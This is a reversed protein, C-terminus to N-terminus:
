EHFVVFEDLAARDTKLSNIPQSKDEYGLAMGAYLIHDEPLEIFNGVTQHMMTWAEQPCTALGREEALLMLTQMFMGVHAWQPQGMKRDITFFIGVPAGFFEFNKAVQMLRGIKNDREIGITKYLAEGCEYRRSRYPEHLNEPYVQFEMGDGMSNKALKQQVQQKLLDLSEGIVVHVHWPQLNGGSPSLGAGTLLEKLVAKSVPKDLYARVSKRRELIDLITM